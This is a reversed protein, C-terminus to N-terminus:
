DLKGGHREQKFNNRRVYTFNTAAKVM